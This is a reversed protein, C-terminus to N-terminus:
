LADEAHFGSCLVDLTAIRHEGTAFVHQEATRAEDPRGPPWLRVRWRACMRPGLRGLAADAVEFADDGGFWTRFQNATETAGDLEFAGRPVLARFRVQEDLCDHLADFDRGIIADLLLGAAPWANSRAPVLTDMGWNRRRV